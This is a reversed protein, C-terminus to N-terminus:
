REKKYFGGAKLMFESAHYKTRFGDVPYLNCTTVDGVCSWCHKMKFVQGVRIDGVYFAWIYSSVKKYKFDLVKGDLIISYM